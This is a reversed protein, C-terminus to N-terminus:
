DEENWIIGERDILIRDAIISLIEPASILADDSQMICEGCGHKEFYKTLIKIAAEKKEETWVIIHM